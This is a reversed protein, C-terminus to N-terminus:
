ARATMAMSRPEVKVCAAARMAKTYGKPVIGNENRTRCEDALAIMQKGHERLWTLDSTDESPPVYSICREGLRKAVRHPLTALAGGCRWLIQWGKDADYALGHMLDSSGSMVIDAFLKWDEIQTVDREGNQHNGIPM